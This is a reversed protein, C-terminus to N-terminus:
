KILEICTFASGELVVFYLCFFLCSSSMLSTRGRWHLFRHQQPAVAPKLSAPEHTRLGGHLTHTTHTSHTRRKWTPAKWNSKINPKMWVGYHLPPVFWVLFGSNGMSGLESCFPYIWLCGWMSLCVQWCEAQFKRVCVCVCVGESQSGQCKTEDVNFFFFTTASCGVYFERVATM